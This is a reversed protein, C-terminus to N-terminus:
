IGFQHFDNYVKKRVVYFHYTIKNRFIRMEFHCVNKYKDIKAKQKNEVWILKINFYDKYPFLKLLGRM